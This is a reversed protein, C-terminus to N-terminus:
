TISYHIPTLNVKFLENNVQLGFIKIVRNSLSSFIFSINTM